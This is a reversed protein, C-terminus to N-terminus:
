ASNDARAPQERALLTALHEVSYCREALERGAQGIGSARAADGLLDAVAGAFERAGDVAVFDRGPIGDEILSAAHQTAVVPLGYALGEVFKLPSGGGRLLPVVVIDAAHYEAALDEVFGPADIRGDRPVDRLGAGVARLRATPAREWLAPLVEDVLFTLAELNPRYRFDAVFLLQRAHAPSAPAIRTVDIVNPVHRTRVTDGALARAGREDARTAMWCESFGRFLRGEFRALAERGAAGRFGSSELNHALYILERSSTLPLLAAAAIPADAIVQTGAPVGDLVHSLEPSIGRAIGAPIGRSVARAFEMGRRVARSAYLPRTRVNALEGYEPAPAHAGFRIYAIEVAHSRALAATVGYTRLGTGSGLTPTVSSVILYSM